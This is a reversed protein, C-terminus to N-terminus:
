HKKRCNSFSSTTKQFKGSFHHNKSVRVGFTTTKQLKRRPPRPGGTLRERGTVGNRGGAGAGSLRRREGAGGEGGSEWGSHGLLGLAGDEPESDLVVRSRGGRCRSTREPHNPMGMADEGRKAGDDTWWSRVTRRPLWNSAQSPQVPSNAPPLGLSRRRHRVAVLM